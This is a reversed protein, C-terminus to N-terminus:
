KKIDKGDMKLVHYEGTKKNVEIDFEVEYFAYKFEAAAEESLGLEDAMDGNSEKDGHLYYKKKVWDSKKPEALTWSEGQGIGYAGCKVCCSKVGEYEGDKHECDKRKQILEDDAILKQLISDTVWWAGYTPLKEKIAEKEEQSLFIPM